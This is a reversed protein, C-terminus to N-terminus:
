VNLDEQLIKVNEFNSITSRVEADFVKVGSEFKAAISVAVEPKLLLHKLKKKKPKDVKRLAGDAVLVYHEDVIEKIVLVKGRDRGCKSICVRGVEAAIRM